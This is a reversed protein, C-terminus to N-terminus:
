RPTARACGVCTTAAPRALLREYAIPQGCGACAGADAEDLRQAARRLEAMEARAADLRAAVQAREYAITPGEPDHEDDRVADASSTM